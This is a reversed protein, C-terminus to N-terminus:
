ENVPRILDFIKSISTNPISTNAFDVEKENYDRNALTTFSSYWM